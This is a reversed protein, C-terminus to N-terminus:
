GTVAKKRAHHGLLYIPVIIFAAGLVFWIDLIEAFLVWGALVAFLLGVYEVSAIRSAPVHSYAKMCAYSYGISCVSSGIAYGLMTVNFSAGEWLFLGFSLPIACLQTIWLGHVLSQEKPLKKILLSSIALLLSFGLAYLAGWSIETPRLIVLVGSFGGIVALITLPTLREKLFIVSLVAIMIPVTYFIANATSLPLLQLSLVLLMSGLVWMNGRLFHIRGGVFVNSWDISRYFVLLVLPTFLTRIFIFQFIPIDQGAFKILVDSVTACFNGVVLLLVATAVTMESRNKMRIFRKSGVTKLSPNSQM